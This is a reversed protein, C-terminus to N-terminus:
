VKSIIESLSIRSSLVLRIKPKLYHALVYSIFIVAQSSGFDTRHWILFPLNNFYYHEPAIRYRFSYLTM